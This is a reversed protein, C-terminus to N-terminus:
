SDRPLRAVATRTHLGGPFFDLNLRFDWGQVRSGFLVDIPLGTAFNHGNKFIHLIDTITVGM